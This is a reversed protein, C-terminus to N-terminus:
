WNVEVSLDVTRPAGFQEYNHSAYYDRPDNGFYFGRVGYQKDFVNNASLNVRWDTAQYGTNLYTLAYSHSQENHSDSYYFQDKGMLEVTAYFGNDARYHAGVNFTYKPAHAMQRNNMDTGASAKEPSVYDKIKTKLYGVTYYLEINDNFQYTTEIELGYGRSSGANDIYDVFKTGGSGNLYTIGSKLQTNDRYHYFAALKLNLDNDLSRGKVGFETSYLSEPEFSSNALLLAKRKADIIDGAEALAAGNIGGARDSRAFTLYTMAQENVENTLSINFGYLTDDAVESIMANDNYDIDYQGVRAGVTLESKDSLQYGIQGYIASDNHENVSVFDQSLWTYKRTLDSDRLNFYVGAVWSLASGEKSLLRLDVTNQKRARQYQDTASYGDAEALCPGQSVDCPDPQYDPDDSLWSYQGYAWDEDYSYVLDSSLSSATLEINLADLGDYVSTVGFAKTRQTDRGPQDSYTDRNFDLSFSDYGNDNDIYHMVADLTLHESAQAKVKLKVNSEDINNTDDAGLFLNNIYGDSVQRVASLRVHVDDNISAGTAFGASASNYTGASLLLRSEQDSAATTSDLKLVGAIADNGFATGQPGRYLTVQDVDFLLGAGGLGSYNIGDIILGVSPNTPDVFESRQGIGRIQVFNGRSAGSSFNVNAMAGLLNESHTANRAVIEENDIVSISGQTKMLNQQKFNSTVEIVEYEKAASDSNAFTPSALLVLTILSLASKM